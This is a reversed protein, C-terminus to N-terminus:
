TGLFRDSSMTRMSTRYRNSSLLWAIYCDAAGMGDPQLNKTQARIHFAACRLNLPRLEVRIDETFELSYSKPTAGSGKRGANPKESGTLTGQDRITRCHKEESARPRLSRRLIVTLSQISLSTSRECTGSAM